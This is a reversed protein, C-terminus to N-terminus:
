PLFAPQGSTFLFALVGSAMIWIDASTIVQRFFTEAPQAAAVTNNLFARSRRANEKTGPIAGPGPVACELSRGRGLAAM